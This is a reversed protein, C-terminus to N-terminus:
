PCANYTIGTIRIITGTIVTTDNLNIDAGSTSVDGNLVEAGDSDLFRFKAVVGGASCTGELAAGITLAAAGSSAAAFAPDSLTIECLQTGYGATYFRLVGAGAGADIRDVVLDAVATRTNTSHAVTM